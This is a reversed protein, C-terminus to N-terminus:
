RVRRQPQVVSWNVFRGMNTRTFKAVAEDLTGTDPAEMGSLDIANALQVSDAQLNQYYVACFDGNNYQSYSPKKGPEYEIIIVGAGPSYNSVFRITGTFDFSSPRGNESYGRYEILEPTINYKEAPVTNGPQIYEWEGQLRSPLAGPINAEEGGVAGYLDCRSFFLTGM